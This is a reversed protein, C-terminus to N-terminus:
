GHLSADAPAAGDSADKPGADEPGGDPRPKGGCMDGILEEFAPDFSVSDQSLLSGDLCYQEPADAPLAPFAPMRPRPTRRARVPTPPPMGNEFAQEAGNTASADATEPIPCNAACVYYECELQANIAGACAQGAASPDAAAVCGGINVFTMSGHSVVEVLPGWPGTPAPPPNQLAPASAIASIVPCGDLCAHNEVM